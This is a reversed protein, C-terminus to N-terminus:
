GNKKRRLKKKYEWENFVYYDMYTEGDMEIVGVGYDYACARCLIKFWTNGKYFGKTIRFAGVYPYVRKLLTGNKSRLNHTMDGGCCWCKKQIVGRWDEVDMGYDHRLGGYRFPKDILTNAGKM